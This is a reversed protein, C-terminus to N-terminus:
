VPRLSPNQRKLLDVFKNKANHGDYFLLQNQKFRKFKIDRMSIIIMILFFSSRQIMVHSYCILGEARIKIMQLTTLPVSTLTLGGQVQEDWGSNDDTYTGTEEEKCAFKSCFWGVLFGWLVVKKWTKLNDPLIVDSLVHLQIKDWIVLQSICPDLYYLM